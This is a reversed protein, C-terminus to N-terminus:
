GPWPPLTLGAVTRGSLDGTPTPAPTPPGASRYERQYSLSRPRPYAQALIAAVDKGSPAYRGTNRARFFAATEADVARRATIHPPEGEGLEDLASEASEARAEATRRARQERKLRESLEQFPNPDPNRLRIGPNLNVSFRSM